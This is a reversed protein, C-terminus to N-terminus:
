TRTDIEYEKEYEYAIGNQYLFNAIDMEGYSKVADGKFTIPPNMKLYEDYEERTQFDFESKETKHNAMLYNCLITLYKPDKMKQTMQDKVFSSLNIRTIKPTIGTVKRLINLGLKHFTSAEINHGTEKVIRERMEAASANTFSLVLIDEPNTKGSNLLYKIKGVITTTKGTGAGAIVLHNHVPKVLCSLQQQDLHRGEVPDILTKAESSLNQLAATNHGEVGAKFLAYKAKLAKIKSNLRTVPIYAKWSAKYAQKKLADYQNDIDSLADISIYDKMDNYCNDMYAIYSDLKAYIDAQGVDSKNQENQLQKNNEM